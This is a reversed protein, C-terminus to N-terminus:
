PQGGLSRIERAYEDAQRQYEKAKYEETKAFDEFEETKYMGKRGGNKRAEAASNWHERAANQHYKMEELAKKRNDKLREIEEENPNRAPESRVPASSARSSTSYSSGAPSGGYYPMTRSARQAASKSARKGSNALMMVIAVIVGLVILLPISHVLLTMVLVALNAGIIAMLLYKVTSGTSEQTLLVIFLMAFGMVGLVVFAMAIWGVSLRAAEIAKVIAVLSNAALVSKVAAKIMFVIGADVALLILAIILGLKAKGSGQRFVRSVLVAFMCLFLIWYVVRFGRGLAFPNPRKTVFM